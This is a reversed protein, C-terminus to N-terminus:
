VLLAHLRHFGHRVVLLLVIKRHQLGVPLFRHQLPFGPINGRWVALAPQPQQPLDQGQAPFMLLPFDVLIHHSVLAHLSGERMHHAFGPERTGPQLVM